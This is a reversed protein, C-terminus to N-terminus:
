RTIQDHAQALGGGRLGACDDGTKPSGAGRLGKSVKMEGRQALVEGKDGPRLPPHSKVRRWSEADSGSGRGALYAELGGV